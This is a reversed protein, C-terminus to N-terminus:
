ILSRIYPTLIRDVRNIRAYEMLLEVNISSRHLYDKLAEIAIEEGIRRRFKFCDAITKEPSYIKIKFGDITIKNIGSSYPKPLMWFVELPPYDIRPKLINRPLAINVSYPIQTTMEYYYLASMLCVVAKPVLLSVHILDPNGLPEMDKLRYLGRGERILEGRDCMEYLTYKQIGLRMAQSLRLIGHNKQFIKKAIENNKTNM